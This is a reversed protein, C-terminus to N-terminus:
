KYKNKIKYVAVLVEAVAQYMEEPIEKDIDVEKYILRALPKNEIIPIDHEKAVERIKFAVVDAGKAVVRPTSDIGKEYKIAISIHTPNTVIVTASPVAQIMRRNSIERQKQKIKGKVQPDGEMQKYEEKVEQKTMKLEKNHTFRQYGYDVVAILVVALCIRGLLSKILEIITNLLYPLYIDASKMIGEFNKNMFSYGIYLLVGIIAVSKVLTGLAKLSFMNKFGNIPNLKSFQPKLGEGTFLMGSQILNGIVGFIMIIFGIPLFIKMFSLLIKSGLSNLMVGSDFNLSFNSSLLNIMSNKIELIIYDSMTFIIILMAVLTIATTVEKSKAINGKKRADRKKKATPEETKDGGMSLVIGVPGLSTMMDGNVMSLTGDLIDPIKNLLNHIETIVFPLAIMFFVVGVLMKLPMGIIMVNLQPVSRSILGMILDTFILSLIVPVAIKFGITFCQVFVHIIYYFNNQILNEGIKILHFSQQIGIILKHHGNMSFFIIIGMWYMLNEILTAQEKSNPDYISSMSLGIQQDILSGAIKLSNFCLNTIYGLLLGNVTEMAVLRILDFTNLVNVDINVGSSIIISMLISFCVKFTNPTGSPFLINLSSFFTIVRIFIFLM